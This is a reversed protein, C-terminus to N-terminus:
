SLVDFFGVADEDHEEFESVDDMWQEHCDVLESFHDDDVPDIHSSFRTKLPTYLSNLEEYYATAIWINKDALYHIRRPKGFEEHADFYEAEADGDTDSDSDYDVQSQWSFYESYGFADVIGKDDFNSQINLQARCLPCTGNSRVWKELCTTGFVHGCALQFPDEAEPNMLNPNYPHYCICCSNALPDLDYEAPDPVYRCPPETTAM